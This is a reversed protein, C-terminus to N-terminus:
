ALGVMRRAHAEIMDLSVDAGCDNDMVYSAYRDGWTRVLGALGSVLGERDAQAGRAARDAAICQLAYAIIVKEEKASWTMTHPEPHGPMPPLGEEIADKLQEAGFTRVAPEAAPPQPAAYLNTGVPVKAAKFCAMTFADAGPMAYAAAVPEAQQAVPEDWVTPLGCVSCHYEGHQGHDVQGCKACPAQQAIAADLDALLKATTVGYQDGAELAIKDMCRQLLEKTM